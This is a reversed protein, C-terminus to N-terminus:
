YGKRKAPKASKVRAFDAQVSQMKETFFKGANFEKLLKMAEEYRRIVVSDKDLNSYNHLLYYAIDCGIGILLQNIPDQAEPISRIHAAIVADADQCATCIKQMANKAAAQIDAQTYALRHNITDKLIHQDILGTKDSRQAIEEPDFREILASPKAWKGCEIKVNLLFKTYFETAKQAYFAHETPNNLSQAALYEFLQAAAHWAVAQKGLIDLTQETHKATFFVRIGSYDPIIPANILIAFENVVYEINDVGCGVGGGVGFIL